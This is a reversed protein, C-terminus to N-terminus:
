NKDRYMLKTKLDVNNYGWVFALGMSFMYLLPAIAMVIFLGISADNISVAHAFVDILPFFGANIIKYVPLFNGIVGLRSLILIF